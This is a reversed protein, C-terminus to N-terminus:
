QGIPVSVKKAADSGKRKVMIDLAAVNPDSSDLQLVLVSGGAADARGLFTTKPTTEWTLEDPKAGYVFLAVKESRKAVTAPIFQQGNLVFPYGANTSDHSNGKVLVWSPHEDIPIPQLAAIESGRPIVIETRAFGRRETDV